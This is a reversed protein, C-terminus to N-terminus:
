QWIRTLCEHRGSAESGSPQAENFLSILVYCVPTLSVSAFQSKRRSIILLIPLSSSLSLSEFNGHRTETDGQGTDNSSECTTHFGGEPFYRDLGTWQNWFCLCLNWSVSGVQATDGVLLHVRKLFLKSIFAALSIWILVSSDELTLEWREKIHFWFLAWEGLSKFTQCSLM